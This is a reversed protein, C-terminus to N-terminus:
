AGSRKNILKQLAEVMRDVLSKLEKDTPQIEPQVQKYIDLAERTKGSVALWNAHLIRVAISSPYDYMLSDVLPRATGLKREDIMAQAQVIRDLAKDAIRSAQYKMYEPSWDSLPKLEVKLQANENGPALLVQVPVYGSKEVLYTGASDKEITVPTEGLLQRAGDNGVTYVNAKKVSSDIVVSALITSTSITCVLAVLIKKM